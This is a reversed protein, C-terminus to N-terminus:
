FGQMQPAPMMGQMGGPPVGMDMGAPPMGHPPVGGNMGTQNFGSMDIGGQQMPMPFNGGNEIMLVGPNMGLGGYTAAINDQIQEEEKPPETRKELEQIRLHTQRLNPYLFTSYLQPLWKVLGARIGRRPQCTFLLHISCSWFVRERGQRLLFSTSGM